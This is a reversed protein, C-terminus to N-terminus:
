PANRASRLLDLAADLDSGPATNSLFIFNVAVNGVVLAGQTMYHYEDSGAKWTKDTVSFYYGSTQPGGLEQVSVSTNEAREKIEPAAAMREVAARLREPSPKGASPPIAIPAVTMAFDHGPATVQVTPASSAGGGQVDAVWGDPMQVELTGGNAVPIRRPQAAQAGSVTLLIAVLPM